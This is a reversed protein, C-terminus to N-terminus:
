HELVKLMLKHNYEHGNYKIHKVDYICAIPLRKLEGNVFIAKYYGMWIVYDADCRKIIDIFMKDCYCNHIVYKNYQVSPADRKKLDEESSVQIYSNSEDFVFLISENCRPYNKRYNEVKSSHKTLVKEFNRIYGNFNYENSDNTNPIFYLFGNLSKKYNNGYYKKMFRNTREFSNPIHKGDIENVCDDIRMVDMMIRHKDNHFDPPLSSKSSSNIWSKKFLFSKTLKEIRFCHFFRGNYVVPPFFSTRYQNLVFEEDDFTKM